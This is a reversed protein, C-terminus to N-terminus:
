FGHFGTVDILAERSLSDFQGTLSSESAVM